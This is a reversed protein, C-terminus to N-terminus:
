KRFDKHKIKCIIREGSRNFLEVSPRMILGEAMYEKNHSIRSKFGHKVLEVGQLLNGKGIVPVENIELKNAIDTVDERKLWWDGIKVDFLIFDARDPIYNGGKQIKVGYGEGYLCFPSESVSKMKESTFREMLTTVLHSPIQARDTKGGFTVKEGDWMVRINTGDIKETFTWEIEDLLEFEPKAYQGELLTKFNTDPDRLFVTQIKHYQKM